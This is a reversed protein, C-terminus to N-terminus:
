NVGTRMTMVMERIDIKMNDELKRRNGFYISGSLNQYLVKIDKNRSIDCM